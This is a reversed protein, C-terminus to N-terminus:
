KGGSQRSINKLIIFSLILLFALGISVAPVFFATIIIVVIVVAIIGLFIRFSMDTKSSEEAEQGSATNPSNAGPGNKAAPRPSSGAPSGDDACGDSKFSNRVEEEEEILDEEDCLNYYDNYDDFPGYM